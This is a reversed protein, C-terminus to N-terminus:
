PTTSPAASPGGNAGGRGLGGVNGIIVQTATVSGDPNSTGVVTVQNGSAIDTATATTSTVQTVTTTPTLLVLKSGGANTTVTIQGAAVSGVTGATGGGFGPRGSANPGAAQGNRAVGGNTSAKAATTNAVAYGGGFALLAVVAIAVTPLLLRKSRPKSRALRAADANPAVPEPQTNLTTNM